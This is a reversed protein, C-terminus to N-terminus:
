VKLKLRLLGFNEIEVEVEKEKGSIYSSASIEDCM